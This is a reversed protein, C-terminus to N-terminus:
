DWGESRYVAAVLACVTKETCTIGETVQQIEGYTEPRYKIMCSLTENILNSVEQESHGENETFLGKNTGDGALVWGIGAWADKGIEDEIQSAYVVYLKHGFEDAKVEAKGIEIKSGPPIVSSLRILNYNAIGANFLAADFAAIRTDGTGTGKTLTIIHEM